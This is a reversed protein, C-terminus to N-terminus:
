ESPEMIAALPRVWYDNVSPYNRTEQQWAASAEAATDFQGWLLVRLTRGSATTASM